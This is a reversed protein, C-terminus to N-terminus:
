GRRRTRHQEMKKVEQYHQIEVEEEEAAAEKLERDVKLEYEVVLKHNAELEEKM